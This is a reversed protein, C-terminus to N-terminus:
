NWGQAAGLLWNAVRRPGDDSALMAELPTTGSFPGEVRPRRLFGAQMDDHRLLNYLAEYVGLLEAFREFQAQTLEVSPSEPKPGMLELREADSLQWLAAVMDLVTWVVVDSDLKLRVLYSTMPVGGPPREGLEYHPGVTYFRRGILRGLERSGDPNERVLYGPYDPDSGYVPVGHKRVAAEVSDPPYTRKPMSAGTSVMMRPVVMNRFISVKTGCDVEDRLVLCYDLYGVDHMTGLPMDLDVNPVRQQRMRPNQDIRYVM